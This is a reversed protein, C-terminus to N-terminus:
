SQSPSASRTPLLSRLAAHMTEFRPTRIQIRRGLRRALNFAFDRCGAEDYLQITSFPAVQIGMRELIGARVMDRGQEAATAHHAFSQYEVALRARTFFLDVFCRNQGLRRSAQRDLAIEHNFTAGGLGYGGLTHPLTLMMYAISEMVSASGNEIFSAARAAKRIGYYGPTKELFACIRQKSSLAEGAKGPPNSCLQLGLLILRQLDLATAMQLFVLEPSAVDWHKGPITAGRPLPYGSAHNRVGEAQFRRNREPYTIDVAAAGRAAAGAGPLVVDLAPIQHYEAASRHSIYTKM